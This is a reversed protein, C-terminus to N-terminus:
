HHGREHPGQHQCLQAQTQFLKYQAQQSQYEFLARDLADSSGLNRQFLSRQRELERKLKNLTAEIQAVELTLQEVDLQALLQGKKVVDGEEVKIDQLVGTSRAVVMADNEAELTTISRYTQQIDGREVSVVEVPIPAKEEEKEKGDKDQSAQNDSKSAGDSCGANGLAMMLLMGLLLWKTLGKGAMFDTSIM